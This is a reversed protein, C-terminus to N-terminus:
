EMDRFGFQRVGLHIPDGLKGGLKRMEKYAGIKDLVDHVRTIAGKKSMDTMIAIQEIRRGKVRFGDGEKEISYNHIDPLNEDPHFVKREKKEPVPKQEKKRLAIVEDKLRYLFEKLGLGSVASIFLPKEKKFERKVLEAIENITADCKNFVLIQPKKALAPSYSKLEQNLKKYEDRLEEENHTIDMLHVLIKTREIHKLFAIGLGKGEHAGEILGPIDAVMFDATDVKVVGLNPVLTTFPYDAIKPRANSIRSILTSKGVSPYGIFAVEAILKLELKLEKEGGPEGLEAFDPAQRVSSKFGANGKGGMGGRVVVAEQGNEALDALLKGDASDYVLTGVPVKLILDAGNHGYRDRGRGNHGSEAKFHKRSMYNVLTNLNADAQFVVSGGNGGNGGDPGGKPIYKARMFSASGNGGNGAKVKIKAEDCFYM